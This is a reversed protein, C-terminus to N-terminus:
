HLKTLFIYIFQGYSFIELRLIVSCLLYGNSIVNQRGYTWYMAYECGVAHLGEGAVM